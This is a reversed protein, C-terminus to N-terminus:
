DMGLRKRAMAVGAMVDATLYKGFQEMWEPDQMGDIVDIPNMEDLPNRGDGDAVPDTGTTITRREDVVNREKGEM